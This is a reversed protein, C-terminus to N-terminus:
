LRDRRDELAGIQFLVLVWVAFSKATRGTWFWCSYWLGYDTVNPPYISGMLVCVGELVISWLMMTYFLVLRNDTRLRRLHMSGLAAAVVDATSALFWLFLWRKVAISGSKGHGIFLSANLVVLLGLLILTYKKM